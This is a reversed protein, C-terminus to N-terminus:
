AILTTTLCKLQTLLHCLWVVFRREYRSGTLPPLKLAQAFMTCSDFRQRKHVDTELESAVVNLVHSPQHDVSDTDGDKVGGCADVRFLESGTEVDLFCVSGDADGVVLVKGDPRWVVTSTTTTSTGSANAGGGAQSEETWLVQTDLRMVSLAGARNTAVLLDM